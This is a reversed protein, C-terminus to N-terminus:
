WKKKMYDSFTKTPLKRKRRIMKTWLLNGEDETIFGNALAKVMIDGTTIHDINYKNVYYLVDRMNNSAVVGNNVKAHALAAAEGDGIPKIGQDPNLTMEIFLRYEDSGVNIDKVIVDLNHQMLDIKAKLHPISPHSIEHYVQNPLIIRGKYLKVLIDERNVWLFSSICDTDYFYDSTM